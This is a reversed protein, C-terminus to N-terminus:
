HLVERYRRSSGVQTENPPNLPQALGTDVGPFTASVINCLQARLKHIEEM